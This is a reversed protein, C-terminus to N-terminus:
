LVSSWARDESGVYAFRTLQRALLHEAVLRSVQEPDSSIESLKALPSNPGLQEDTLGLPITGVNAKLIADAM